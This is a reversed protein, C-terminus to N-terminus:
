PVATMQDTGIVRGAARLTVAFPTSAQITGSSLAGRISAALAQRDFKVTLHDHSGALETATVAAGGPVTLTVSGAPMVLDAVRVGDISATVSTSGGKSRLNLSSPSVHATWRAITIAASSVGVNGAADAATCRVISAGDLLGATSITTTFVASTSSAVQQGDLTCQVSAFSPDNTALELVFSDGVLDGSRPSVLFDAPASNDAVASISTAASANGAADTATAVITFPGDPLSTTDFSVSCPSRSCSGLSTGDVALAIAAIGSTVDSADVLISISGRVLAAATPSVIGVQPATNDVVVTRQTSSGNGAADTALVGIQHPGDALTSTDFTANWMSTDRTTPAMVGDVSILVAAVESTDDAILEGIEVVGHVAAGAAPSVDTIRPGRTDYVVTRSLTALRDAEDVASAAFTVLGETMPILAYVLGGGRPVNYTEGGLVTVTTATLSDIRIAVPLINEPLPGFLAGDAVSVELLPATTDVLVGVHTTATHGAADLASVEIVHYGDAGLDVPAVVTGSGDVHYSVGAVTVTSSSADTVRVVVSVVPSSVAQDPAPSEITVDPAITDVVVIASTSSANGAADTAQLVITNNGEALPRPGSVSGDAAVVLNPGRVNNVLFAASAVGVDDHVNGTVLLDATGRLAAVPDLHVVPPTSDAPPTPTCALAFSTPSAIVSSPTVSCPSGVRFAAIQGNAVIDHNLGLMAIFDHPGQFTQGPYSRMTYNVTSSSPTVTISTTNVKLTTGTGTGAPHTSTVTGTASVSFQFMDTINSLEHPMGPIVVYSHPGQFQETFYSRLWYRGSYAGPDITITANNLKLTSGIGVASPSSIVVNGSADIRFVFTATINALEHLLGPVVTFTRPGSVNQTFYSRIFYLGTYAGPDVTLTTSNIHLTSGSGTASPSAIVVNGAADLKFTLLDTINSFDYFLGPMVVYTHSGVFQETFYSRLFWRGAYGSPDITLTTTNFHVTNGGCTSAAHSCTVNGSGDVFISWLDSINSLDYTLSPLVVFAHPGVFQQSLQSRLFYRGTYAGPDVDLTVNKFRLTSGVAQAPNQSSSVQGAADVTFTFTSSIVSITHTGTSLEFSASGTKQAGGDVQYIGQYAVPDVSITHADTRQAVLSLFAFALAAYLRHLSPM